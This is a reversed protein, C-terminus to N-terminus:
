QRSESGKDGDEGKPVWKNGCARKCRASRDDFKRDDQPEKSVAERLSRCPLRPQLSSNSLASASVAGLQGGHTRSPIVRSGAPTTATQPPVDRRASWSSCAHRGNPKPLRAHTGRGHSGRTSTRACLTFLQSGFPGISSALIEIHAADVRFEELECRRPPACPALTCSRRLRSRAASARACCLCCGALGSCLPSKVPRFPLAGRAFAHVCRQLM